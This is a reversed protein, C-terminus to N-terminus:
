QFPHYWVWRKKYEISVIPSHICSCTHFCIYLILIHMYKTKSQLLYIEHSHSFRYVDLNRTCTCMKDSIQHTCCVHFIIIELAPRSTSEIQIKSTNKKQIGLYPVWNSKIKKWFFLFVKISSSNHYTASIMAKNVKIDHKKTEKYGNYLMPKMIVLIEIKTKSM